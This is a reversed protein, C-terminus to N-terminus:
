ARDAELGPNLATVTELEDWLLAGIRRDRSARSSRVLRPQGRTQFLHRPGILEAGRLGPRTAAFLIPLCARQVPQSVAKYAGVVAARVLDPSERTTSAAINTGALGPHAAVSITGSAPGAGTVSTAPSGAARSGHAGLRRQLERAFALGALKTRGYYTFRRYNAGRWDALLRERDFRGFWHALSTVTVVRTSWGSEGGPEANSGTVREM